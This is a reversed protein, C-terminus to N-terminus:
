NFEMMLYQRIINWFWLNRWRTQKSGVIRLLGPAYLWRYPPQYKVWWGPGDLRDLRHSTLCPAIHVFQSPQGPRPRPFFVHNELPPVSATFVHSMHCCIHLFTM